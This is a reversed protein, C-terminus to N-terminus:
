EYHFELLKKNIKVQFLKTRCVGGLSVHMCLNEISSCTKLLHRRIKKEYIYQIVILGTNPNEPLVPFLMELESAM